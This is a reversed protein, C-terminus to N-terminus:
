ECNGYKGTLGIIKEKLADNMADVNSEVIKMLIDGIQINIKLNINPHTGLVEKHQAQTTCLKDWHDILRNVTHAANGAGRVTSIYALKVGAVDSQVKFKASDIDHVSLLAKVRRLVTNSLDMNNQQIAVDNLKFHMDFVSDLLQSNLNNDQSTCRAMMKSTIFTRYAILAEWSQVSDTQHLQACKWRESLWNLTHEDIHKDLQVAYDHMEAVCQINLLKQNRLRTSLVSINNWEGLFQEFYRDSYFKARKYDENAIFLLMLPDSFHREIFECRTTDRLWCEIYSTFTKAAQQAGHIAMHANAQMYHPLLNQKNWDDTWLEEESDFQKRVNKDLDEWRAMEAYCNFFSQYAFDTELQSISDLAIFDALMRVAKSYEGTATCNIADLLIRDSGIQNAYISAVIDAESLKGYLNALSAWDANVAETPRNLTILRHEYLLIADISMANAETLGGMINSQVDFVIDHSLGIETLVSFLMPDCSESASLMATIAKGLREGFAPKEAAEIESHIADFLAVFTSGALNSDYRILNQLPMLFALSNLLFDPFDGFRYRRYLQVQSKKQKAQKANAVKRYENRAIAKSANERRTEQSDRVIYTRLHDFRRDGGRNANNPLARQSRRDLTQTPVSFLLSSQTQLTFLANNQHMTSPDQTPDFLVANKTPKLYSLTGSVAAMQQSQTFLPIQLSSNQRTWGIDVDYETLKSLDADSHHRLINLTEKSNNAQIAPELLFQVCYKVFEDQCQPHYLYEFIYLLRDHSKAPLPETVTWYQFIRNRVNADSDNLGSLLAPTAFEYLERNAQHNQRIFIIIESVILRCEAQPSRQLTKLVPTMKIVEEITMLPISKNLIHLAITSFEDAKLLEIIKIALLEKFIQNGHTTARSLFMELYSKKSRGCSRPIQGAIRVLFRDVIPEYYKHVGYLVHLFKSEEKSCLRNLKTHLVHLFEDIRDDGSQQEILIEHLAMGLVHAAPQYVVSHENDICMGLAQLHEVRQEVNWPILGNSLIVGNLHIGCINQKSKLDGSPKISDYLLQTPIILFDRWKEVLNRIIELNRRFVDKRDSWAYTFLGEMVINALRIEDESRIRYKADWELLDACLFITLADIQEFRYSALFMLLAKTVRVAYHSFWSRLNDIVMILFLRINQPTGDNEIIRCITDVWSPAGTRSSGDANYPTIQNVFMHEITACLAVMIEHKNIATSELSISHPQYTPAAANVKRVVSSSLDIKLVDQSLSSDFIAQSDIYKRPLTNSEKNLCRISTIRQKIRPKSDVDLWQTTYLLANATNILKKWISPTRFLLIEYHFLETKTNCAIACATKYAACQYKRFWEMRTQNLCSFPDNEPKPVALYQMVRLLEGDSAVRGLIEHAFNFTVVIWSVITFIDSLLSVQQLQFRQM